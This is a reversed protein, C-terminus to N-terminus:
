TNIIPGLNQPTGWAATLSPRQSVWLDHGGLTGPGDGSFYLSMGNPAVAPGTETGGSNVPVGLSQPLSFDSIITPSNAPAGNIKSLTLAPAMALLAISTLITSLTTTNM